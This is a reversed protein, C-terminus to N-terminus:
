AKQTFLMLVEKEEKPYSQQMTFYREERASMVPLETKRFNVSIGQNEGEEVNGAFAGIYYLM